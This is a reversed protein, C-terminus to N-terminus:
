VQQTIQAAHHERPQAIASISFAGRLRCHTLARNGNAVRLILLLINIVQAPVGPIGVATDPRNKIFLFLLVPQFFHLQNALYATLRQINGGRLALYNGSVRCVVLHLRHLRFIDGRRFFLPLFGM